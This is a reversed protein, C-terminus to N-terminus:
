NFLAFVAGLGRLVSAYILLDTAPIEHAYTNLLFPICSIISTNGGIILFAKIKLTKLKDKFFHTYRFLITGTCFNRIVSSFVCNCRLVRKFQHAFNNTPANPKLAKHSPVSLVAKNAMM